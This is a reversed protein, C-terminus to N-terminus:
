KCGSSDWVANTLDGCLDINVIISQNKFHSTMDCDTNPFDALATGWGSPDPNKNTIDSPIGSRNFQWMRIGETRWEVAMVGGGASNFEPGYTSNTGTTQCGTNSNTGNYCDTQGATATMIRKVDMECSSTTHLTMMNGTTAYNVAEM